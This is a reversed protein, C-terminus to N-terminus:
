TNLKAKQNPRNSVINVIVLVPQMGTLGTKSRKCVNPEDSGDMCDWLENCTSGWSM